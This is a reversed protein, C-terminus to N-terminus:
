LHLAQGALAAAGEATALSPVPGLQNTEPVSMPHISPAAHNGQVNLLEHADPAAAPLALHDVKPVTFADPMVAFSHATAAVTHAFSSLDPTAPAHLTDAAPLEPLSPVSPAAFAPGAIGVGLAAIGAAAATIRLTRSSM